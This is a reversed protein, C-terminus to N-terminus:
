AEGRTAYAHRACRWWVATRQGADLERVYPQAQRGCRECAHRASTDLVVGDVLHAPLLQVRQRRAAALRAGVAKREAATRGHWCARGGQAAIERRENPSVTAMRARGGCPHQGLTLRVPSTVPRDPPLMGAWALEREIARLDYAGPGAPRFWRPDADRFSVRGRMWDPLSPRDYVSRSMPEPSVILRSM